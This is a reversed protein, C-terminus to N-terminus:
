VEDDPASRPLDRETVTFNHAREMLVAHNTARTPMSRLAEALKDGTLKLLDREYTKCLALGTQFVVTLNGELLLADMLRPAVASPAPNDGGVLMTQFWYTTYMSPLMIRQPHGEKVMQRYEEVTMDFFKCLQKTVHRDLRPLHRHLLRQWADYCVHLYPFGPTFLGKVTCTEMITAFTWFADEETMYLLLVAAYSSMGQCYGLSPNLAAYARLVRTLAEQGTRGSTRFYIHETMTRPVDKDIQEFHASMAGGDPTSALAAYQGEARFDAPARGAAMLKWVFGRVAEPVGQRIRTRLKAPKRTAYDRWANPTACRKQWKQLQENEYRMMDRTVPADLFEQTSLIFGFRDLLPMIVFELDGMAGAILHKAQELTPGQHLEGDVRIDLLKAGAKLESFASCLSGPNVDVVMLWRGDKCMGLQLGVKQESDRKHLKIKITEGRVTPQPQPKAIEVHAAM